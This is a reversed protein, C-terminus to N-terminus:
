WGPPPSTTTVTMSYDNRTDAALYVRMLLTSGSTSNTVSFVENNTNANRDALVTGGCTGFVQVDIDGNAHTFTMNVSM